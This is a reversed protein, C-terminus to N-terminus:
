VSLGVRVYPPETPDRRYRIDFPNTVNAWKTLEAFLADDLVLAEKWQQEDTLMLTLVPFLFFIHM